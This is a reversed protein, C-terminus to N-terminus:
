DRRTPHSGVWRIRFTSGSGPASDLSLEGGCRLAIRRALCLGLGTGAVGREEAAAGRTFPAFLGDHQDLPIGPGDDSVEVSAGADPTRTAGIRIRTADTYKVANDVLETLLRRLHEPEGPVLVPGDVLDNSLSLGRAAADPQLAGFVDAIVPGVDTLELTSPPPVSDLRALDAVREVTTLLEGASHQIMELQRAQQAVDVSGTSMKMSMIRALGIIGNLPGRLEHGLKSLVDVGPLLPPVASGRPVANVLIRGGVDAEVGLARWWGRADGAGPRANVREASSTM